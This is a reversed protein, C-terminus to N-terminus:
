VEGCKGYMKVLATGVMLHHRDLGLKRVCSHIMPGFSRGAKRRFIPAPPSSSQSFSTIPNSPPAACKPSSRAAAQALQGARCLRSISSTWSVTPHQYSIQKISLNSKSPNRTRFQHPPKIDPPPLPQQRLTLQTTSSLAPLAM